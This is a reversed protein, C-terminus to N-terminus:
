KKSKDVLWDVVGTINGGTLASCMVVVWANTTIYDLNLGIKIYKNVKLLKNKM